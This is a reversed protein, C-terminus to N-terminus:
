FIGKKFNKKIKAKKVKINLKYLKGSKLNKLNQVTKIFRFSEINDNKIKLGSDKDFQVNSESGTKQKFVEENFKNM